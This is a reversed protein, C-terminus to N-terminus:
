KTACRRPQARIWSAALDHVIPRRSQSVVPWVVYVCVTDPVHAHFKDTRRYSIERGPSPLFTSVISAKELARVASRISREKLGTLCMVRARAPWAVGLADAFSALTVLVLKQTPSLQPHMEMLTRIRQLPHDWESMGPTEEGIGSTGNLHVASIKTSM